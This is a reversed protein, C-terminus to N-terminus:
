SQPSQGHSRGENPLEDGSDGREKYDPMIGSSRKTTREGQAKSKTRHIMPSFHDQRVRWGSRQGDVRLCAHLLAADAGLRQRAGRSRGPRVRGPRSRGDHDEVFARAAPAAKARLLKGARTRRRRGLRRPSWPRGGVLPKPSSIVKLGVADTRPQRFLHCEEAKRFECSRRRADASSTAQGFHPWASPNALRSVPLRKPARIELPAAM